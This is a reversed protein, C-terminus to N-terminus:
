RAGPRGPAHHRQVAAQDVIAESHEVPPSRRHIVGIRRAKGGSARTSAAAPVKASVMPAGSRHAQEQSLGVARGAQARSLEASARRWGARTPGPGAAEAPMTASRMPAPRTSGTPTSSTASPRRQNREYLRGPSRRWRRARRWRRWCPRARPASPQWWAAQHRGFSDRLMAVPMTLAPPLEPLEDERGDRLADGGHRRAPRYRQLAEGAIVAPAAAGTRAPAAPCELGPQAPLGAECQRRLLARASATARASRWHASRRGHGSRGRSRRGAVVDGREAWGALRHRGALRWGPDAGPRQRHDAQEADDAAADAYPQVPRTRYRARADTTHCLGCEALQPHGGRRPRRRHQGEHERGFLALRSAATRGRPPPRSVRRRAAWRAGASTALTRAWGLM